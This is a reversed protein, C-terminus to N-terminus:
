DGKYLKQKLTYSQIGRKKWKQNPFTESTRSRQTLQKRPKDSDGEVM